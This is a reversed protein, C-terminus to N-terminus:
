NPVGIMNDLNNNGEGCNFCTLRYTGDIDGEIQAFKANEGLWPFTASYGPDIWQTIQDLSTGDCTGGRANRGMSDTCFFGFGTYIMLPNGCGAGCGNGVQIFRQAGSNGTYILSSTQCGDGFCITQPNRTNFTIISGLNLQTGDLAFKWPEYAPQGLSWDPILRSAYNSVPNSCAPSTPGPQYPRAGTNEFSAGFDAMFALGGHSGESPPAGARRVYVQVEHMRVCVRGASATGFHHVFMWAHGATDDPVVYVKFGQHAEPMGSHYASIGFPPGHWEPGGNSLAEFLAPNSGHEHGFYCGTAPDRQPHWTPYTRQDLLGSTTRTVYADHIATSCLAPQAQISPMAGLLIDAFVALVSALLAATIRGRARASLSNGM